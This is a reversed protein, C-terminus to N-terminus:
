RVRRRFAALGLLGAGLLALSAPEPVPTASQLTATFSGIEQTRSTVIFFVFESTTMLSDGDAAVGAYTIDNLGGSVFQVLPNSGNNKDTLSFNDGDIEINLGLLTGSGNQPTQFYDSVQNLGSLPAASLTITGTGSITGGSTPSLTLDYIISANAAGAHSALAVFAALALNKISFM